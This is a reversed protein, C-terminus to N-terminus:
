RSGSGDPIDEVLETAWNAEQIEADLLRRREAIQDATQRLQAVPLDTVYRLESRMQREMPGHLGPARSGSAADAVATYLAHRLTLVDREALAATMTRESPLKTIANTLNIQRILTELQGLARDARALLDAAAEAPPEGEQFRAASQARARLQDHARKRDARLLLAEALKM